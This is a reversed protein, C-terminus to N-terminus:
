RRTHRARVAEKYLARAHVSTDARGSGYRGFLDVGMDYSRRQEQLQNQLAVIGQKLVDSQTLGLAKALRQIAAAEQATVRVSITKADMVM